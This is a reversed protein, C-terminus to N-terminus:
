GFYQQMLANYSEIMRSIASELTVRQCQIKSIKDEYEDQLSKPPLHIKIKSLKTVNIGKMIAGNSIVDVQGKVYQSNHLQHTIFVSNAINTDPRIRLVDSHIVGSPYSKPYLACKGITGKRSMLIDGPIASYQSLEEAKEVSIYAYPPLAFHSSIQPIAWIPIGNDIYESKTLQTGFPGCKISEADQGVASLEIAEWGKPNEVPDGFMEVFLSKEVEDLMTIQQKRKAIISSITDLIKVIHNQETLSFLPIEIESINKSSLHKVTSFSTKNGIEKLVRPLYYLLYKEVVKHSTISIKCVRQNLLATGGRWVGLNFDGDMGILYDGNQILYRDAYGETTYTKSFGRVVDRVRILPLGKKSETFRESDFAYGNTVNCVDGLKVM